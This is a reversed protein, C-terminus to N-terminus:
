KFSKILNLISNVQEQNLQSLSNLLEQFNNDSNSFVRLILDQESKNFKNMYISFDAFVSTSESSQIESKLLYDVSVKFYDSTALLVEVSPSILNSELRSVSASTVKLISAIDDQKLSHQLRLLKLNEGFSM